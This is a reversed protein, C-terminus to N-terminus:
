SVLGYDPAGALMKGMDYVNAGHPLNPNSQITAFLLVSGDSHKYAFINHFGGPTDPTRIRSVVKIGNTDPLSTVDLVVAGLDFDPGNGTLQIGQVDYYRGQSKFYVNTIAGHGTHLKEEEIRWSYLIQPKTPDKVNIIDVGYGGGPPSWRGVYAFPRSLEEE